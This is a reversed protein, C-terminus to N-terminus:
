DVWSFYLSSSTRRMSIILYDMWGESRFKNFCAVSQGCEMHASLSKCGELQMSGLAQCRFWSRQWAPLLRSCRWWSAMRVRKSSRKLWTRRRGWLVRKGCFRSAGRGKKEVSSPRWSMDLTNCSAWLPPNSSCHWWNNVNDGWRAWM